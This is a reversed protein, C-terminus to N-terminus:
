KKVIDDDGVDVFSRSSTTGSFDAPSSVDEASGTEEESPLPLPTSVIPVFGISSSVVALLLVLLESNDFKLAESDIPDIRMCICLFSASNLSNFLDEVISRLSSWAKFATLALAVPSSAAIDGFLSKKEHIRLCSPSVLPLPMAVLLAASWDAM